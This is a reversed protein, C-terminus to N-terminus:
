SMAFIAREPSPICTAPTGPANGWASSNCGTPTSNPRAWPVVVAAGARRRALPAVVRYGLAVGQSLTGVSCEGGQLPPVRREGRTGILRGPPAFRSIACMRTSKIGCMDSTMRSRTDSWFSGSSRRFHLRGTITQLSPSKLNDLIGVMYAHLRSRIEPIILPERHKTSFILHVLVKSLSQPMPLSAREPSIFTPASSNGPRQGPSTLTAGEPRICTPTASNGPRQGPSTLTAGEPRICTPISSNRRPPSTRALPATLSWNMPTASCIEFHKMCLHSFARTFRTPFIATVPATRRILDIRRWGM